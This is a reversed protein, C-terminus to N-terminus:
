GYKIVEKKITTGNNMKTEEMELTFTEGVINALEKIRSLLERKDEICSTGFGLIKVKIPFEGINYLGILSKLREKLSRLGHETYFKNNRERIKEKM